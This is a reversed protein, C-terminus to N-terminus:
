RAAVAHQTFERPVRDGHGRRHARGRALRGAARRLRRRQHRRRHAGRPRAAPDIRAQAAEPLVGLSVPADDVVAWLELARGADARGRRPQGSRRRGDGSRLDRSSAPARERRSPRVILRPTPRRRSRSGSRSSPRPPPSAAGCALSGWLRALASPKAGGFLGSWRARAGGGAARGARLRADLAAFDDRWRAVEAAFAPDAAERARATPPRAGSRARAARIRRRARRRRRRPALDDQDDRDSMARPVGAPQDAVPAALHADHEAARRLPQALEDYSFGEVYAGRVAAARDPALAGLCGDLRGRDDAAM